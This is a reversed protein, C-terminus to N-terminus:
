SVDLESEALSSELLGLGAIEDRKRLGYLQAWKYPQKWALRATGTEYSLLTVRNRILLHSYLKRSPNQSERELINSPKKKISILFVFVLILIHTRQPFVKMLTTHAMHKIEQCTRKREIWWWNCNSQIGTQRDIQEFSIWFDNGFSTVEEGSM